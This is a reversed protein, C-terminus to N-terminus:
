VPALEGLIAYALKTAKARSVVVTIRRGDLASSQATFFLKNEPKGKDNDYRTVELTDGDFDSISIDRYGLKSNKFKM